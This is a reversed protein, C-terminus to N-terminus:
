SLLYPPLTRLCLLTFRLLMQSAAPGKNSEACVASFHGLRAHSQTVEKGVEGADIYREHYRTPVWFPMDVAVTGTTVNIRSRIARGPCGAM